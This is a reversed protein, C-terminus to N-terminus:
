RCKVDSYLMTMNLNEFIEEPRVVWLLLIM